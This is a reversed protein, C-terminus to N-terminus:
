PTNGACQGNIDSAPVANSDTKDITVPSPPPCHKVICVTFIATCESSPQQVAVVM